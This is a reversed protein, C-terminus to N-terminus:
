HEWWRIGLDLLLLRLEAKSRVSLKELAHRVHTKVTEPSVVLKEAIQRNTRGRATLWVVEHERPTLTKLVADARARLAARELGFALLEVALAEPSLDRERAALRLRASLGEGVELVLQGNSRSPRRSQAEGSHGKRWFRM